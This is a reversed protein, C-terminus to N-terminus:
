AAPKNESKSEVQNAKNSGISVKIQKPKAEARKGLTITVVGADYNANINSTDVTNPLTFTRIFSGYRREIRHYNEQKAEQELKREGAITLINNEVRVDIDDQQIGPAELKLVLKHEDEYIDVPPVFSGTTLGENSSGPQAFDQFISNLRNQLVAVDHLPTFRTITM